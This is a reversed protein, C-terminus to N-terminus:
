SAQRYVRVYDVMYDAPLATLEPHAPDPNGWYSSGVQLNLRIHFPGAFSSDFWAIDAPTAQGVNVGDLFFVMGTPTWELAYVHFGADLRPQGPAPEGWPYGSKKAAGAAESQWVTWQYRNAPDFDTRITPTGYAEMIDVEGDGNASNDPRLWFAPWLGRSVGPATPLQARMEFRGYRQSFRGITDLYGTTFQRGGLAERQAVLHLCSGSVTVNEPRATIYAQDYSLTDANRVNWKSTDVTDGDFEDSWVLTWGDGIRWPGGAVPVPVGQDLFTGVAVTM